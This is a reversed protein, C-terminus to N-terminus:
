DEIDIPKISEKAENDNPYAKPKQQLVRTLTTKDQM